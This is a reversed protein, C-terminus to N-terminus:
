KYVEFHEWVPVHLRKKCGLRSQKSISIMSNIELDEQEDYKVFSLLCIYLLEKNNIKIIMIIWTQLLAYSTAQSVLCILTSASFTLVPLKVDVDVQINEIECEFFLVYYMYM